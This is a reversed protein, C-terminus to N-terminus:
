MINCSRAGVVCSAILQEIEPGRCSVNIPLPKKISWTTLAQRDVSQTTGLGTLLPEIENRSCSVSTFDFCYILRACSLSLAQHALKYGVCIRRGAGFGSYGGTVGKAPDAIWREPRFM